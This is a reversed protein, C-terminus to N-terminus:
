AQIIRHLCSHLCALLTQNGNDNHVNHQHWSSFQDLHSEWTSTDTPLSYSSHGPSTLFDWFASCWFYVSPGPHSWKAGTLQLDPMKDRWAKLHFSRGRQLKHAVAQIHGASLPLRQYQNWSILSHRRHSCSKSTVLSQQRNKCTQRDQTYCFYCRPTAKICFAVRFWLSCCGARFHKLLELSTGWKGENTM